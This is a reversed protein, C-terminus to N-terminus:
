MLFSDLALPQISPVPPNKGIHRVAFIPKQAAKAEQKAEERAKRWNKLRQHLDESADAAKTKKSGAM